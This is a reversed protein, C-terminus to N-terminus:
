IYNNILLRSFALMFGLGCTLMMIIFLPRIMEPKVYNAIFVACAMGVLFYLTTRKFYIDHLNRLQKQVHQSKFVAITVLIAIFGYLYIFIAMM